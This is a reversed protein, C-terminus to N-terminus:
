LLLKYIYTTLNYALPSVFRELSPCCHPMKLGLVVIAVPFLKLRNSMFLLRNLTEELTQLKPLPYHLSVFAESGITMSFVLIFQMNLVFFWRGWDIGVIFLPILSLFPVIFYYLVIAYFQKSSVSYDIAHNSKQVKKDVKCHKNAVVKSTHTFSSENDTPTKSVVRFSCIITITSLVVGLTFYCLYLLPSAMVSTYTYVLNDYITKEHFMFVGQLPVCPYTIINAFHLKVNQCLAVAHQYGAQGFIIISLFSVMLPIYVVCTLKISRLVNKHAITNFMFLVTLMLNIPTILLVTGEHAFTLLSLAIPPVLLIFALLSNQRFSVSPDCLRESLFSTCGKRILYCNLSTILFGLLEMRGLVWPDYLPFIILVPSILLLSYICKNVRVKYINFIYIFILACFTVKSIRTIVPLATGADCINSIIAGFLGRKTFGDSYNLVWTTQIYQRLHALLRDILLIGYNIICFYFFIYQLTQNKQPKIRNM